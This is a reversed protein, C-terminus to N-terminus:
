ALVPPVFPARAIRGTGYHQAQVESGDETRVFEWDMPDFTVTSNEDEQPGVSTWDTPTWMFGGLAGDMDDRDVLTDVFRQSADSM